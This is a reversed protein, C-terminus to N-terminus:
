LLFNTDYPIMVTWKSNAFLHRWIKYRWNESDHNTLFFFLSLNKLYMLGYEKNYGRLLHLIKCEKAKIEIFFYMKCKQFPTHSIQGWWWGGTVSYTGWKIHRAPRFERCVALGSEAEEPISPNFAHMVAGLQSWQRKYAWHIKTNNFLDQSNMLETKREYVYNWATIRFGLLFIVFNLILFYLKVQIYAWM